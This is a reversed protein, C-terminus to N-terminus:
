GRAHVVVLLQAEGSAPYRMKAEQIEHVRQETRWGM